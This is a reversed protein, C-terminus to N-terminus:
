VSKSSNGQNDRGKDVNRNPNKVQGEDAPEGKDDLYKNEVAKDQLQDPNVDKLGTGGRREGSPKGQPTKSKQVM